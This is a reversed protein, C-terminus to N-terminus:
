PVDAWPFVVVGTGQKGPRWEDRSLEVKEPGFFWSLWLRSLIRCERQRSIPGNERPDVNQPSKRVVNCLSGPSFPFVDVSCFDFFFDLPSPAGFNCINTGQRPRVRGSLQLHLKEFNTRFAILLAFTMELAYTYDWLPACGPAPSTLSM